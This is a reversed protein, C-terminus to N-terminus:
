LIENVKALGSLGGKAEKFVSQIDLLMEYRKFCGLNGYSEALMKIDCQFNYGVLQVLFVPNLQWFAVIDFISLLIAGYLVDYKLGSFVLLHLFCAFFFEPQIQCKRGLLSTCILDM